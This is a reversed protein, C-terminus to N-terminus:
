YAIRGLNGELVRAELRNAIEALTLRTVTGTSSVERLSGLKVTFPAALGLADVPPEFVALFAGSETFPAFELDVTEGGPLPATVLLGATGLSTLPAVILVALRARWTVAINGGADIAVPSDIAGAQLPATLHEIMNRHSASRHRDADLFAPAAAM